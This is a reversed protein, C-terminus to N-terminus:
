VKAAAELAAIRALAEQLAATLLPVLKAADMAQMATGDKTGTVAMPVVQQVEHAIFGDFVEHTSDAKFKFRSPKLQLLRATADTLPEVDQKLRYDSSTNYSTATTTVGISGVSTGSRCFSILAGDGNLNWNSFSGSAASIFTRGDPHLSTGTTTNSFGPVTTSAQGHLMFGSADITTRVTGANTRFQIKGSASHSSLNLSDDTSEGWLRPGITGSTTCLEITGGLTGSLTLTKSNTNSLPTAGIGVDGAASIKARETGATAFSLIDTGGLYVGTNTDTTFSFTPVSASGAGGQYSTTIVAAPLSITPNGAAGSGNTVTIQNSTGAIDRNLQTQTKTVAGTISPFTAKITSKLLRLHDDGSSVVDTNLPNTAVLDSIYTGTELPM